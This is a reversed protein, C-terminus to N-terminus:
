VPSDQTPKYNSVQPCFIPDYYLCSLHKVHSQPFYSLIYFMFVTSMEESIFREVRPRSGMIFYAQYTQVPNPLLHHPSLSLIMFISSAEHKKSDSGYSHTLFLIRLKNQVQYSQSTSFVHPSKNLQKREMVTKDYKPWFLTYLVPEVFVPCELRHLKLLLRSFKPAFFVHPKYLCSVHPQPALFPTTHLLCLSM